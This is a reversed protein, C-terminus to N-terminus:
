PRSVLGGSHRQVRGSLELDLLCSAVQHAPLGLDRILADEAVPSPGLHKLITSEVRGDQGRGQPPCTAPVPPSPAPSAQPSSSAPPASASTTAGPPAPPAAGHPAPCLPALAEIVDAADRVLLAGDRILMNAGASRADFPHGPVALVERNQDLAMRATILSGSRAAAEVVVLVHALGSIIRNRPPFHRAQPQLGMAAESLCLGTAAIREALAANEAPYHVDVGGAVVAITGTALAADHAAADIGRALGSVVVYGAQGLDQALRRAMRRGLSSANRAGVLAIAPRELLDMRGRAWLLPPADPLQRLIAPYPPAGYLLLRAGARRGARYEAEAQDPPCPAYGRVGSRRALEPLAALAATASGHERLLRFFTSPGVRRSRFLRLQSIHEEESRPPTLPPRPFLDETM